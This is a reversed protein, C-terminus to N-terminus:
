CFLDSTLMHYKYAARVRGRNLITKFRPSRNAEFPPRVVDSLDSVYMFVAM